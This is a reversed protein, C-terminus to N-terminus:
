AMITSGDLYVIFRPLFESNGCPKAFPSQRMFLYQYLFYQYKIYRITGLLLVDRNTVGWTVLEILLMGYSKQKNDSNASIKHPNMFDWIM